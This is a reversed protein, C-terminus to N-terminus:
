TNVFADFNAMARKLIGGRFRIPKYPKMLYHKVNEYIPTYNVGHVAFVGVM